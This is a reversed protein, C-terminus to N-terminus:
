MNFEHRIMYHTSDVLENYRQAIMNYQGIISEIDSIQDTIKDYNDEFQKVMKDIDLENFIVKDYGLTMVTFKYEDVYISYGQQVQFSRESWDYFNYELYISSYNSDIYFHKDIEQLATLLRKNYKKGQWKTLLARVQENDLADAIQKLFEAQVELKKVKIDTIEKTFMTM